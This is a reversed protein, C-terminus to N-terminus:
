ALATRLHKLHAEGAAAAEVQGVQGDEGSVEDVEVEVCRLHLDLHIDGLHPQSM